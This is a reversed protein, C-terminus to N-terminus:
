PTGRARALAADNLSDTSVPGTPAIAVPQAPQTLLPAKAALQDMRANASNASTSNGFFFQVIAGFVTSIGSLVITFTGANETPVGLFLVVLHAIAWTALVCAGGTVQAWAILNSKSALDRADARDAHESQMQQLAIQQLAIRLEAQKDPPLDRIKEPDTTGAIAEVAISAVQAAKDGALYRTLSPALGLLTGLVALM